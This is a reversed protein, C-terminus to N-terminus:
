EERRPNTEPSERIFSAEREMNATLRFRQCRSNQDCDFVIYRFDCDGETEEYDDIWNIYTCDHGHLTFGNPDTFLTPDMATLNDRSITDPYYGHEKYFIRLNYYMANIATKRIQDRNAAELNGRQIVFFVTLVALVVFAILLEIATFGSQKKMFQNYCM